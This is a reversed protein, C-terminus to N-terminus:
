VFFLSKKQVFKLLHAVYAISAHVLAGGVSKKKLRARNQQSRASKTGEMQTSGDRWAM